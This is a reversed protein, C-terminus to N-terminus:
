QRPHAGPLMSIVKRMVIANEGTDGYYHELLACARFGFQQYLAQASLNRERVELTIVDAGRQRAVEVLHSLLHGGLGRRRREPHVAITSIHAEDVILWMGAYGILEDALRAVVYYCHPNRLERLYSERSWASPFSVHEIALVDDMDEPRMAEIAVQDLWATEASGSTLTSPRRPM